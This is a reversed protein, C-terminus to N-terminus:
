LKDTTLNKRRNVMYFKMFVVGAMLVALGISFYPSRIVDWRGSLILFGILFLASSGTIGSIEFPIKMSGLTLKNQNELAELRSELEKIYASKTDQQAKLNHLELDLKEIEPKLNNHTFNSLESIAAQLSRLSESISSFVENINRIKYGTGSVESSNDASIISLNSAKGPPLVASLALNSINGESISSVLDSLFSNRRISSKPFFSPVHPFILPDTVVTGTNEELFCVPFNGSFTRGTQLGPPAEMSFRREVAKFGKEFSRVNQDFIEIRGQLDELIEPEIQYLKELKVM